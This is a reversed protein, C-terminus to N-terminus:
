ESCSRLVMSSTTSNNPSFDVTLSIPIPRTRSANRIQQERARTRDLSHGLIVPKLLQTTGDSLRWKDVMACSAQELHRTIPQIPLRAVKTHINLQYGLLFRREPTDFRLSGENQAFAYLKSARLSAETSRIAAFKFSILPTLGRQNGSVAALRFPTV